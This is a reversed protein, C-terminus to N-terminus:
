LTKDYVANKARCPHSCYYHKDLISLHVPWPNQMTPSRWNWICKENDEPQPFCIMKTM